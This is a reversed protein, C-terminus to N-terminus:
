KKWFMWGLCRVALWVVWARVPMGKDKICERLIWDADARSYGLAYAIDHRDCCDEFRTTWPIGTCGNPASM